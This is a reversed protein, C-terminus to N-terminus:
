KEDLGSGIWEAPIRMWTKPILNIPEDLNQFWPMPAFIRNAPSDSLYAAWWSLTSNSLVYIDGKKMEYLLRLVSNSNPRETIVQVNTYKSVLSPINSVGNSFFFIQFLHEARSIREVASQFYHDSLAGIKGENLYDGRRAHLVLCKEAQPECPKLKSLYLDNVFQNLIDRIERAILESQFYGIIVHPIKTTLGYGSKQSSPSDCYVQNPTYGSFLLGIRALFTITMYLFSKSSKIQPIQSRRLILNHSKIFFWSPRAEDISIKLKRQTAIAELLEALEFESKVLSINFIVSNGAFKVGSAIQFLQNGLGGSLFITLNKEKSLL